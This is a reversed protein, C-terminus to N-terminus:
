CEMTTTTENLMAVIRSVVITSVIAVTTIGFEKICVYLKIQNGSTANETTNCYLVHELVDEPLGNRAPPEWAVVVGDKSKKEM